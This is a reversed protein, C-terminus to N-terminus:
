EGVLSEINDYVIHSDGTEADVEGSALCRFKRSQDKLLFYEINAANESSPEISYIICENDYDGDEEIPLTAYWRGCTLIFELFYTLNDPLGEWTTCLGMLQYGDLENWNTILSTDIEPEPTPGPQPAPPIPKSGDLVAREILSVDDKSPIGSYSGKIVGNDEYVLKFKKSM